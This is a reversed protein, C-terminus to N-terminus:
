SVADLGSLARIQSADGIAFDLALAVAASNNFHHGLAVHAPHHLYADLDAESEFELIVAYEFHVSALADYAYGLVRRRGVRVRRVQPIDLCARELALIIDRREQANLSAKPTFLVVHAIM